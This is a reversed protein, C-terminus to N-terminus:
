EFKPWFKPWIRDFNPQFKTLIQDFINKKVPWSLQKGTWFETLIRFEGL